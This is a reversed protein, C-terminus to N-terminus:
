YQYFLWQFFVTSNNTKSLSNLLNDVFSVLVSTDHQEESFVAVKVSQFDPFVYSIKKPLFKAYVIAWWIKVILWGVLTHWGWIVSRGTWKVRGWSSTEVVISKSYTYVLLSFWTRLTTLFRRWAEVDINLM